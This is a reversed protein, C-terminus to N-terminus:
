VGKKNIKELIDFTNVFYVSCFFYLIFIFIFFIESSPLIYNPLSRKVTQCCLDSVQLHPTHCTSASESHHQPHLSFLLWKTFQPSPYLRRYHYVTKISTMSSSIANETLILVNLYWIYILVHTSDFNTLQYDQITSYIRSLEFIIFGRSRNEPYQIM